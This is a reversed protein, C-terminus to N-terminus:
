IQIKEQVQLLDGDQSFDDQPAPLEDDNESPAAATPATEVASAAAAEAEEIMRQQQKPSIPVDKTKEFLEQWSSIMERPQKDEMSKDYVYSHQRTRDVRRAEIAALRM